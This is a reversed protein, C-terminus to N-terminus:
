KYVNNTYTINNNMLIHENSQFNDMYRIFDCAVDEMDYPKSFNGTIDCLYRLAEDQKMNPLILKLCKKANSGIYVDSDRDVLDPFYEALDMAFATLVFNQRMYGREKLYKNGHDVIDKIGVKGSKKIFNKINYILYISENLIFERLGGKIMPLLYGKVDCFKDSYPLFHLWENRNNIDNRLLEVIWFNGFGHTGWPEDTIKVKPKYNIGSGCLRFLYCLDMFDEKTINRYFNIGNGKPDKEKHVIAELLSSFAAYKRNVVDYIPVHWILDDDIDEKTFSAGEFKLEQMMKAKRYYELFTNIMEM